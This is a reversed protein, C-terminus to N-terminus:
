DLKGCWALLSGAVLMTNLNVISRGDLRRISSIQKYSTRARVPLQYHWRIEVSGTEEIMFRVLGLVTPRLAPQSVGDHLDGAQMEPDVSLAIFIGPYKDM